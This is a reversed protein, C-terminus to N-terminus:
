TPASRAATARRREDLDRIIDAVRAALEAAERMASSMRPDHAAAGKHRQMESLLLDLTATLLRQKYEPDRRARALEAETVAFGNSM